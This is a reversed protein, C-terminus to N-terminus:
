CNGRLSVEKYCSPVWDKWYREIIIVQYRNLSLTSHRLVPSGSDRLLPTLPESLKMLQVLYRKLYSVMGQFSQLGKKDKPASMQKIAEVKRDNIKMGKPTLTHGFFECKTSKFQLKKPNFKIGNMRATELQRLVNVDHDKFDVGRALVDDVCGTIGKVGKLVSNLRKQFVDLSVKMGYPLRLWNYKGWPYKLNGFHTRLIWNWYRIARSPMLSQSIGRTMSSLVSKMLQRPTTGTGRSVRISTKQIWVSDLRNMQSLSPTCRQEEMGHTGCSTRYHRLQM